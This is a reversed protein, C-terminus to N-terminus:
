IIVYKPYYLSGINEIYYRKRKFTFYNNFNEDIKIDVIKGLEDDTVMLKGYPNIRKNDYLPITYDILKVIRLARYLIIGNINKVEILKKGREELYDKESQLDSQLVPKLSNDENIKQIVENFTIEDYIENYCNKIYLDYILDNKTYVKAM